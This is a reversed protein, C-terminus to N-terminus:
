VRSMHDVTYLPCNVTSLGALPAASHSLRHSQGPPRATVPWNVTRRPRNSPAGEPSAGHVHAPGTPAGPLACGSRPPARSLGARAPAGGPRRWYAARTRRVSLASPPACGSRTRARRRPAALVGRADAPGIPRRAPRLRKAHPRVAPAGGIRRARGGSRYPAPRPAAAERAPAGGPRRCYAARRPRRVPPRQSPRLRKAHPRVAPAGAIRRADRAGSRLAGPPACESRPRSTRACRSPAPSGRTRWPTVVNGGRAARPSM